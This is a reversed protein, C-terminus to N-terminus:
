APATQLLAPTSFHAKDSMGVLLAAIDRAAAPKALSYSAARMAALAAPDHHLRAVQHVLDGPKRAWIAAGSRVFMEGNGQEQGPLQSTIVIAAGACAAEALTGPGAKTVLLDAARVWDAMDAAWGKVLLQVPPAGARAMELRRRLRLNRGCIAVVTLDEWGANLLARVHTEIHGCGEAGGALVVVFGGEKLGLKSRLQAREPPTAPPASMELPVPLGTQVCSPAGGFQEAVAASPTVVLDPSGGRWASHVSWLDTVVTVMPIPKRGSKAARAAPVTTLPHFSVVMEASSRVLEGAVDRSTSALLTKWLVWARRPSDSAQYLAGWAWPSWRILPGYLGILRRQCRPASRGMLPDYIHALFCGPWQEELAEAVALAARRHGGGTDSVLFLMPVPGKTGRSM